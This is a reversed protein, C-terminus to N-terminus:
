AGAPRDDWGNESLHSHLARIASVAHRGWHTQFGFTWEWLAAEVHGRDFLVLAKRIDAFVESIDDALHGVIPPETARVCRLRREACAADASSWLPQGRAVFHEGADM